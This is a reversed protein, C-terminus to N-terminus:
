YLLLMEAYAMCSISRKKARYLLFKIIKARCLCVRHLFEHYQGQQEAEYGAGLGLVGSFRGLDCLRLLHAGGGDQRAVKQRFSVEGQQLALANPHIGVLRTHSPLLVDHIQQLTTPEIDDIDERWLMTEPPISIRPLLHVVRHICLSSQRDNREIALLPPLGIGLGHLLHIRQHHVNLIHPQAEVGIIYGHAAQHIGACLLALLKDYQIPRVRVAHIHITGDEVHLVLTAYSPQRDGHHMAHRQAFQCLHHISLLPQRLAPLALEGHNRAGVIGM